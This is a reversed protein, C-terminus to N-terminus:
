LSLLNRTNGQVKVAVIERFRLGCCTSNNGTVKDVCGRTDIVFTYTKQTTDIYNIKARDVEHEISQVDHSISIREYTQWLTVSGVWRGEVTDKRIGGYVVKHNDDVSISIEIVENRNIAKQRLMDLYQAAPIKEPPENISVIQGITSSISDEFYSIAIRRAIIADQPELPNAISRLQTLLRDISNSVEEEIGDRFNACILTDKVPAPCGNYKKLGFVKPCKDYKNAVGDKDNDPCGKTSKPGFENPCEDLSNRITDQDQDPCGQTLPLGPVDICLDIKDPVGDKDRDPPKSFITWLGLVVLLLVVTSGVITKWNQVIWEGISQLQALIVNQKDPDRDSGRGPVRPGEDDPPCLTLYAQTLRARSNHDKPELLGLRAHYRKEIDAHTAGRRLSLIKLAQKKTM